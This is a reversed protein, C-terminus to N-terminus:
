VATLSLLAEGLAQAPIFPKLFFSDGGEWLFPGEIRDATVMVLATDDQGEDEAIMSTMRLGSQNDRGKQNDTLIANPRLRRAMEMTEPLSSAYAFRFDFPELMQTIGDQVRASDDSILVLPQDLSHADSTTAGKGNGNMRFSDLARRAEIRVRPSPDASLEHLADASPLDKLRALARCAATRVRSSPHSLKQRIAVEAGPLGLCGIYLLARRISDSVSDERLIEFWFRRGGYGNGISLIQAAALNDANPM